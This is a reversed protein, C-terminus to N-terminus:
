TAFRGGEVILAMKVDPKPVSIYNNLAISMSTNLPYTVFAWFDIGYSGAFAIEQKMTALSSGNVTVSNAGIANGFFPLRYHWRQPNLENTVALGVTTNTGTWADWRISGVRLSGLAASSFCVVITFLYSPRSMWILPLIAVSHGSYISPMM